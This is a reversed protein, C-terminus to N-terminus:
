LVQCYWRMAAYMGYQIVNTSNAINPINATMGSGM